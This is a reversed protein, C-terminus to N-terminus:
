ILHVIDYNTEFSYNGVVELAYQLVILFYLTLIQVNQVSFLM